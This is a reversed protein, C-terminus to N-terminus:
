VNIKGWTRHVESVWEKCDYAEIVWQVDDPIEVVVLKVRKWSPTFDDPFEEVAQVLFPDDRKLKYRNPMEEKSIGALGCYHAIQEDTLRFGGHSRCIVIKKM